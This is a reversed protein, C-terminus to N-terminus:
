RNVMLSPSLSYICHVVCVVIVDFRAFCRFFWRYNLVNNSPNEDSDTLPVIGMEDDSLEVLVTDLRDLVLGPRVMGQM